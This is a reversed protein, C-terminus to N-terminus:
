DHGKESKKPKKHRHDASEYENMAPQGAQGSQGATVPPVGTRGGSGAGQGHGAMGPADGPADEVTTLVRQPRGENAADSCTAAMMAAAVLSAGAVAARTLRKRGPVAPLDDSTDFCTAETASAVGDRSPAQPVLSTQAGLLAETTTEMAATPRHDGAVATPLYAYRTEAAAPLVVRIGAADALVRAVEVSTPRQAPAKALCQQCIEVVESPLGPIEPLPAPDANCHASIMETVTGAQWPLSGCLARYLVVGLAYVDTAPQVPAGLLREPALYAPTGLLTGDTVLDAREGSVAAIGFDVVKVGALTLMVNAPKVDRHVLGRAHATGLAAAVEACVRVATRWPLAGRDLRDALSVGELLEMVVYPTPTGDPGRSEGYDYVNSVNPHSLCAVAQAEARLRGRSAEDACDAALLKVAVQRGLVEDHARWVVSMGGSGLVEILRYRGALFRLM